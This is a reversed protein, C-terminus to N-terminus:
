NYSTEDVMHNFIYMRNCRRIYCYVGCRRCQCCTDHNSDIPNVYTIFNYITDYHSVGGKMIATTFKAFFSFPLAQAWDKKALLKDLKEDIRQIVTAQEEIVEMSVDIINFLKKFLAFERESMSDFIDSGFEKFMYEKVDNVEIILQNTREVLM